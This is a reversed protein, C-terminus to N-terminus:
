ASGIVCLDRPFRPFVFANPMTRRAAYVAKHRARCLATNILSSLIVWSEGGGEDGCFLSNRRGIAIPRISREVINTDPELRGDDLFLIL